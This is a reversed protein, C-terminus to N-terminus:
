RNEFGMDTGWWSTGAPIFGVSNNRPAGVSSRTMKLPGFVADQLYQAYTKGTANEVVRGLLAYGVNSYVPTTFPAYVPPRKGFNDFFV